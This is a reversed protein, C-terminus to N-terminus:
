PTGPRPAIKMQNGQGHVFGAVVVQHLQSGHGLHVAKVALRAHIPLPEELVVFPEDDRAGTQLALNGPAAHVVVQFGRALPCDLHLLDKAVAKIQLQLFVADRFLCHGVPREHLNRLFQANAQHSGVVTVIQQGVIGLGMRHQEGDLAAFGQVIGAAEAIGGVRKVHLRRPFHGRGKAIARLGDFIRDSDGFAAVHFEGKALGKEGLEWQGLAMGKRAIELGGAPLAELGAHLLHGPVAFEARLQPLLVVVPQDHLDIDDPLHLKRGIKENHGVEDVPGLILANRDPRRPEPAPLRAAKQMAMVSM